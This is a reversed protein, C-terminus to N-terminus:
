RHRCSSSSCIRDWREMLRRSPPIRTLCPSIQTKITSTTSQL